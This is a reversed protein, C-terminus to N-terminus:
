KYMYFPFYLNKELTALLNLEKVHLYDDICKGCLPRLVQLVIRSWRHFRSFLTHGEVRGIVNLYTPEEKTTTHSTQVNMFVCFSRLIYLAYEDSELFVLHNPSPPSSSLLTGWQCSAWCCLNVQLDRIQRLVGTKPLYSM